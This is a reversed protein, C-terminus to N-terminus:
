RQPGIGSSSGMTSSIRYFFFRLTGYELGQKACSPHKGEWPFIPIVTLHLLLDWPQPEDAQAGPAM